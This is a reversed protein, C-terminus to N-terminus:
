GGSGQSHILPQSCRGAGGAGSSGGAGGASVIIDCALTGGSVTLTGGATFTRYNYGGSTFLTGGSVTLGRMSSAMIGLMPTM